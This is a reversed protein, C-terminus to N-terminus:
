RSQSHKILNWRGTSIISLSMPNRRSTFAAIKPITQSSADALTLTAINTNALAPKGPLKPMSDLFAQNPDRVNVKGTTCYTDIQNVLKAYNISLKANNEINNKQQFIAFFGQYLIVIGTSILLVAILHPSAESIGTKTIIALSIAAILGFVSFIVLNAYFFASFEIATKRHGNAYLAIERRQDNIFLRKEPENVIKCELSKDVVAFDDTLRQGVGIIYYKAIFATLALAIGFGAAILLYSTWGELILPKIKQKFEKITM